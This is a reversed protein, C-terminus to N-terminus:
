ALLRTVERVAEDPRDFYYEDLLPQIEGTIVDRFWGEENDGLTGSPCFFSHGIM